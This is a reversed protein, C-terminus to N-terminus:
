YAISQKQFQHLSVYEQLHESKGAQVEWHGQSVAAEITGMQILDWNKMWAFYETLFGKLEMFSFLLFFVKAVM